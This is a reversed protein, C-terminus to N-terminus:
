GLRLYWQSHQVEPTEGYSSISVSRLNSFLAQAKTELKSLAPINKELIPQMVRWDIYLIGQHPQDLPAIADQFQRQNVLTDNGAELALSLVEPSSALVKQNEINAYAGTVETKFTLNSGPHDIEQSVLRTWAYVKKGALEFPSTGLDQQTAWENLHNELQQSKDTHTQEFAFLWNTEADAHASLVPSLSNPLFAWTYEGDVWPFIKRNLDIDRTKGWDALKRTLWSKIGPYGQLDQSIQTWFAGLNSGSIVFPSNGPLYSLAPPQQQSLPAASIQRDPNAILATELLLGQRFEGFAVGVGKYTPTTAASQGSLAPLLKELNLYAIGSQQKQDLTAIAKQYESHQALQTAPNQITDAAQQLVLSQNAILVFRDDVKATTLYSVPKLVSPLQQATAQPLRSSVQTSIVDLGAYREFSLTEGVAAQKQWFSELFADADKNSRTKLALLYGPQSSSQDRDFYTLAFTIEDNVWPHIDKQYDIGASALLTAPLDALQSSRGATESSLLKLPSSNGSMSIMLPATDPIFHASRPGLETEPQPPMLPINTEDAWVVGGCLFLVLVSALLQLCVSRFKVM